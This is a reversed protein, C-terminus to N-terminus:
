KKAAKRTARKLALQLEAIERQATEISAVMDPNAQALRGLRIIEDMEARAKDEAIQAAEARAARKANMGKRIEASVEQMDNSDEENLISSYMISISDDTATWSAVYYNAFLKFFENMLDAPSKGSIDPVKEAVYKAVDELLGDIYGNGFTIIRCGPWQSGRSFDAIHGPLKDMLVREIDEKHYFIPTRKIIMEPPLIDPKHTNPDTM